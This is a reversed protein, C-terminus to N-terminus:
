GVNTMLQKCVILYGRPSHRNTHRNNELYPFNNLSNWTKLLDFNIEEWNYVLLNANNISNNLKMTTNFSKLIKILTTEKM